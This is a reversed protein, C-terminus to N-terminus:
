FVNEIMDFSAFVVRQLHRCNRALGMIHHSLKVNHDFNEEWFAPTETSREFTAALHILIEPDFAQLESATMENLDGQRYRLTGKFVDPQSKLDGVLVEAGMEVLRPVLEMGIVGAGGTVFVRLDKLENGEM